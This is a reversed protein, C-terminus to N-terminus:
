SPTRAVPTELYGNMQITRGPIGALRQARRPLRLEALLGRIWFTKYFRRHARMKM